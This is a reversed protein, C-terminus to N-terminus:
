FRFRTGVTFTTASFGDDSIGTYNVKVAFAESVDYSVGPRYYFGGGSVDGVGITYGLDADVHFGTGVELSATGALPIYQYDSLSIGMFDGGFIHGYGTAVGVNLNESVEWDHGFDVQVAFKWDGIDGLPFGVNVGGHAGQANVSFMTFIGFISLLIVKRM